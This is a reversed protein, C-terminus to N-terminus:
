QLKQLLTLGDMRPMNIDPVVLDIGDSREICELAEAGDRAFEFCFLGERIQRRFKQQVLPELDAEDDVFLVRPTM